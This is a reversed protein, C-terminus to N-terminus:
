LTKLSKSKERRKLIFYIVIPVGIHFIIGFYSYENWAGQNVTALSGGVGVIGAWLLVYWPKFKM